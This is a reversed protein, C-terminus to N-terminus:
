LFVCRERQTHSLTCLSHFFGLVLNAESQRRVLSVVLTTEECEQDRAKGELICQSGKFQSGFCVREEKKRFNIKALYKTVSILFAVLLVPNRQLSRATRSHVRYAM